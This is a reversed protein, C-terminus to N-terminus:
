RRRCNPCYSSTPLEVVPQSGTSSSPEVSTSSAPSLIDTAPAGKADKANALLVRLERDDLDRVYRGYQWQQGREVVISAHDGDVEFIRYLTKGADTAKNAYVLVYKNTLDNLGAFKADVRSAPEDDFYVFLPKDQEKAIKLAAAYDSQWSGALALSPTLAVVLASFARRM